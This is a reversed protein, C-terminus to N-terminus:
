FMSSYIIKNDFEKPFTFTNGLQLVGVSWGYVETKVRRVTFTNRALTIHYKYFPIASERCHTLM